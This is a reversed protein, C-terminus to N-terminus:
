QHKRVQDFSGYVDMTVSNTLKTSLMLPLDTLKDLAQRNESRVHVKLTYDEKDVKAAWKSPFADGCAVLQKHSNYLMWLQSEYESEYLVSSLWPFNPTIEASKSLPFNYALQM